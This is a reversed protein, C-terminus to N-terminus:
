VIESVDREGVGLLYDTYDMESYGGDPNKVFAKTKHGPQGIDTIIAKKDDLDMKAAVQELQTDDLCDIVAKPLYISKNKM